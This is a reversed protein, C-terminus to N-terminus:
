PVTQSPCCCCRLKVSSFCFLLSSSSITGFISRNISPFLCVVLIADTPYSTNLLIWLLHLFYHYSIDVQAVGHGCVSYQQSLLGLKWLGSRIPITRSLYFIGRTVITDYGEVRLVGVLVAVFVLPPALFILRKVYTHAVRNCIGGKRGVLSHPWSEGWEWRVFFTPFGCWSLSSILSMM